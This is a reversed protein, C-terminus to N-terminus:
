NSLLEELHAAMFRDEHVAKVAEYLWKPSTEPHVLRFSALSSFDRPTKGGDFVPVLRALRTDIQFGEVRHVRSGDLNDVFILFDDAPVAGTTM